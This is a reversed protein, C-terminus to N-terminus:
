NMSINWMLEMDMHLVVLWWVSRSLFDKEKKIFTWLLPSFFPLSVLKVLWILKVYSIDVPMNVQKFCSAYSLKSYYVLLISVICILLLYKFNILCKETFVTMSFLSIWSTRLCAKDSFGCECDIRFVLLVSCWGM